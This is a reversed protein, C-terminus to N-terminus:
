VRLFNNCGNGGGEDNFESRSCFRAANKSPSRAIPGPKIASVIQPTTVPTAIDREPKVSWVAAAIDSSTYAPEACNVAKGKIAAPAGNHNIKAAPM